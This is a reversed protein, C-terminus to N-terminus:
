GEDDGDSPSPDSGDDDRWAEGEDDFDEDTGNAGSEDALNRAVEELSDLSSYRTVWESEELLGPELHGLTRYKFQNYQAPEMVTRALAKFEALLEAMEQAIEQARKGQEPTINM